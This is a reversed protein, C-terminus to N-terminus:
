EVVITKQGYVAFGNATRGTVRVVYSGGVDGTFWRIDEDRIAKPNWYLTQRLDPKENDIEGAGRSYDPSYYEVGPRTGHHWVRYPDPSLDLDLYGGDKTYIAVIGPFHKEGYYWDKNHIEIKQIMNSGMPLLTNLNTTFIGDVFLVPSGPLLSSTTTGVLYHNLRGGSMRIRWPGTIERSIERLNEMPEYLAPLFTNAPSGYVLPPFKQITNLDEIKSHYGVGFVKTIRVMEQLERVFDRRGLIGTFPREAFPFGLEYKDHVQITVPQSNTAPDAVLYLERDHYYGDLYFVFYGDPDTQSYILTLITDPTNLLISIGPIGEGTWSHVARGSLVQFDTERPFFFSKSTAPGADMAEGHGNGSDEAYKEQHHLADQRSVMVQLSVLSDAPDPTSVRLRVLDRKPFRDRMELVPTVSQYQKPKAWEGDAPGERCITETSGMRRLVELEQDFRNVVLIDRFPLSTAGQNRMWNTFAILEYYGSSLTDPLYIQGWGENGKLELSVGKILGHKGRLALYAFRSLSSGTGPEGALQVFYFLDEGAIYIDRDTEMILHERDPNKGPVDAYVETLIATRLIPLKGTVGPIVCVFTICIICIILFKRTM